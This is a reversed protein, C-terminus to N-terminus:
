AALQPDLHILRGASKRDISFHRDAFIRDLKGPGAVMIKHDQVRCPPKVNVILQHDAEMPYFLRDPRILDEKHSM